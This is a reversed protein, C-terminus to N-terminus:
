SFGLARKSSFCFFINIFITLYSHFISFIEQTRVRSSKWREITIRIAIFNLRRKNLEFFIDLKNNRKCLSFGADNFAMRSLLDKFILLWLHVLPLFSISMLFKYRIIIMYKKYKVQERRKKDHLFFSSFFIFFM